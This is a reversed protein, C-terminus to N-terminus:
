REIRNGRRNDRGRDKVLGSALANVISLALAGLFAAGFNKVNFGDVVAAVAYFTLGNLLWSLLLSWLGLTICSLPLTLTQAVFELIPKIVANVLGLIIAAILADGVSAVAIAGGSLNAIGLLALASIVLRILFSFM